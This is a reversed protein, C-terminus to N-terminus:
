AYDRRRPLLLRMRLRRSGGGGLPQARYALSTALHEEQHLLDVRRVPTGLIHAAGLSQVVRGRGSHPEVPHKAVEGAM